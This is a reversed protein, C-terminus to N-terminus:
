GFSLLSFKSTQLRCWCTNGLQAKPWLSMSQDSSGMLLLVSVKVAGHKHHLDSNKESWQM